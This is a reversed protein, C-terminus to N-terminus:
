RAEFDVRTADTMRKSADLIEISLLEGRADFDLIVGPREEDTEAVAVDEKFVVTV